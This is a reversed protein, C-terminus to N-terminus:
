FETYDCLHVVLAGDGKSQQQWALGEDGGEILGVVDPVDVEGIWGGYRVDSHYESVREGGVDGDSEM